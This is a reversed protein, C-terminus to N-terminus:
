AWRLLFMTADENSEFNLYPTSGDLVYDVPYQKKIEIGPWAKGDLSLRFNRWWSAEKFVRDEIKFIYLRMDMEITYPEGM